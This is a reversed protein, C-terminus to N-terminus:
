INKKRKFLGKARVARLLALKWAVRLTTIPQFLGMVQFSLSCVCYPSNGLWDCRQIEGLDDFIGM